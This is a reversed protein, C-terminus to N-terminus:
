MVCAWSCQEWEQIFVKATAPPWHNTLYLIGAMERLSHGASRGQAELGPPEKLVVCFEPTATASCPSSLSVLGLRNKEDYFNTRFGSNTTRFWRLGGRSTFVPHFLRTKRPPELIFDKM